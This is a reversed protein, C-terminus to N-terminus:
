SFNLFSERLKGLEYCKKHFERTSWDKYTGKGNARDTGIKVLPKNCYKCAPM